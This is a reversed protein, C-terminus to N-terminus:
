SQSPFFFSQDRQHFKLLSGRSKVATSECWAHFSLWTPRFDLSGKNENVCSFLSEYGFELRETEVWWIANLKHWSLDLSTYVWCLASLRWMCKGKIPRWNDNYLLAMVTFGINNSSANESQMWVPHEAFKVFRKGSNRQHNLNKKGWFLAQLLLFVITTWWVLDESTRRHERKGQKGTEM